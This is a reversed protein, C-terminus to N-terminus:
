NEKLDQFRFIKRPFGPIKILYTFTKMIGQLYKWYIIDDIKMSNKIIPSNRISFMERTAMSIKEM